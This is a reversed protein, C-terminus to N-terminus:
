VTTENGWFYTRECQEDVWEDGRDVYPFTISEQIMRAVGAEAAASAIINAVDRRLSDNTRWASREAASPGTPINTALHAVADHGALASRLAAADFLDLIVPTAGATRVVDAKQ